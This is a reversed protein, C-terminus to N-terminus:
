TLKGGLHHLLDAASMPRFPTERFKSECLDYLRRNYPVDVNHKEALAILAGNISELESRGTGKSLIDSAMSTSGVMAMKRRFIPRTLINPLLKGLKIVWWPPLPSKSPPRIDAAELTQIAENTIETVVAQLSAIGAEEHHSNGIITTVSNTLNSVIKTYADDVFGLSHQCGIFSSFLKTLKQVDPQLQNDPTGLIIPGNINVNWDLRDKTAGIFDPKQWANYNAIAYVANGFYKPLISQNVIGNQLGLVLTEPTIYNVLRQCCDELDFNKVTIILLDVDSIEEIGDLITLRTDGLLVEDGSLIRVPRNKLREANEGRAILTVNHGDATMWAALTTGMAGAGFIVIKLPEQM